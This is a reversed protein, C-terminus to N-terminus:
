GHDPAETPTRLSRIARIDAAQRNLEIAVMNADSEHWEAKLRGAPTRLFAARKDLMDSAREIAAAEAALRHSALIQVLPTPDYGLTMKVSVPCDARHFFVNAAERDCPLVPVMEADSM